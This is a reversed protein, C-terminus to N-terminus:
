WRMKPRFSESPAFQGGMTREFLLVGQDAFDQFTRWMDPRQREVLWYMGAIYRAIFDHFIADIEPATGDQADATWRDFSQYGFLKLTGASTPTPQMILNDGQFRIGDSDLDNQALFPMDSHTTEGDLVFKAPSLLGSVVPANDGIKPVAVATDTVDYTGTDAAVDIHWEGQLKRLLALQEMYANYWTRAKSKFDVTTKAYNQAAGYIDSRTM